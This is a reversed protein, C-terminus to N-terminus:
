RIHQDYQEKFDEVASDIFEEARGLYDAPDFLVDIQEPEAAGAQAFSEAVLERLSTGEQVSRTVLQKLQEKGGPLEPGLDAMLRESLVLGGSLRLNREMQQPDVTLGAFLERARDAAGGTLRLLERLPAWEAHWGGDPREDQAMAAASYLTSLQAPASLAASRILTSLVPNQKHPMASSGGRGAAAPERLEAIEPRQLTLVDGAAKGLASSLGAAASAAQLLPQRQVHWPRNSAPLELRLALRETLERAGEAGAFNVLAAQTGAAGGWQLPLRSLAQELDKLAATLGDLWVAARLGFVTPLAHQTLSRAACLTGRHEEALAALGEAAACGDALMQGGARHVMLVLATDLIDQSTAGRHLASDQPASDQPSDDPGSAKLATRLAALMPIVPNGGGAAARALEEPALGPVEQPNAALRRLAQADAQDAYGAEALVEGWAVEVELLAALLAQDGTLSSVETGAWSPSLLSDETM